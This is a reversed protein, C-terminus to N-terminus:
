RATAAGTQDPRPDASCRPVDARGIRHQRRQQFLTRSQAHRAGPVSKLQGDARHQPLLDRDRSGDPQGPAQDGGVACGRASGSRSRVWTKGVGAARPRLRVQRRQAHRAAPGRRQAADRGGRDGIRVQEARVAIEFLGDRPQTDIRPTPSHVACYMARRCNRSGSANGAASIPSIRASASALLAAGMRAAAAPARAFGPAGPAGIGRLM